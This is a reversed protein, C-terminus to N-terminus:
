PNNQSKRKGEQPWLGRVERIPASKRKRTMKRKTGPGEEDAMVRLYPSRWKQERMGIAKTDGKVPKRGSRREEGDETERKLPQLQKKRFLRVGEYFETMNEKKLHDAPTNDGRCRFYCVAVMGSTARVM